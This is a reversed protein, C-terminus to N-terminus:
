YKLFIFSAWASIRLTNQPICYKGNSSSVNRLTWHKIFARSHSKGIISCVAKRYLSWKIHHTTFLNWNAFNECYIKLLPRSGLSMCVTYWYKILVNNGALKCTSSWPPEMGLFEFEGNETNRWPLNTVPGVFKFFALVVPFIGFIYVKEPEDVAYLRTTYLANLADKHRKIFPIDTIQVAFVSFHRNCKQTSSHLVINRKWSFM